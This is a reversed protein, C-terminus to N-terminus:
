DGDPSKVASQLEPRGERDIASGLAALGNTSFRKWPKIGLKAFAQAEEDTAPRFYTTGCYEGFSVYSATPGIEGPEFYVGIEPVKSLKDKLPEKASHLFWWVLGAVLVPAFLVSRGTYSLFQGVGLFLVFGFIFLVALTFLQAGENWWAGGVKGLEHDTSQVLPCLTRPLCETQPALREGVEDPTERPPFGVRSLRGKSLALM